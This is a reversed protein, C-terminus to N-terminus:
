CKTIRKEKEWHLSFTAIQKHRSFMGESASPPKPPTEVITPPASHRREEQFFVCSFTM